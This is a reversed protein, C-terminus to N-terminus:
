RIFRGASLYVRQVWGAGFVYDGLDRQCVRVSEDFRAPPCLLCLLLPSRHRCGDPRVRYLLDAAEEFGVFFGEGPQHGTLDALGVRFGETLHLFYYVGAVEKGAFAAPEVALSYGGLHRVFLQEGEAHRDPHRRDDGGAVERGGYGGPVYHGSEGAAVRDHPFGGFVGRCDAVCKSLDHQVTAQGVANQVDDLGFAFLGEFSEFLSQVLSQHVFDAEGARRGNALLDPSEAAPM